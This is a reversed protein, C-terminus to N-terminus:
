VGATAARVPERPEIGIAARFAAYSANIRAVRADSGALHAVVAESVRRIASSLEHSGPGEQKMIRASLLQRRHAKEEAISAHLEAMAFGSFIAQDSGSMADWIAKNIGLSLATGTRNLSAGTDHPLHPLLGLAFSAIAGGAEAADIEGRALASELDRAPVSVPEAGLGRAVDGALGFVWVRAGAFDAVTRIARASMLGTSRGTHGAMLGKVGHEAALQDWLTQGGGALMWSEHASARMGNAGPLGAFYAFARSHALNDHESGHYLDAVGSRVADIGRKEGAVFTFQYRRETAVEISRALRRASDAPGKGNDPWSLALRLEKAGSGIAPSAIAPAAVEGSRGLAATTGAAAAAAAGSTTKLFDRRDM